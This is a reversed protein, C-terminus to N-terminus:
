KEEVIVRQENTTALNGQEKAMARLEQITDMVDQQQHVFANGIKATWTLNEAMMALVNPYYCLSLISVDWDKSHLADDLQEGTLYPNKAIWREAEAVEFPYSAAILVQSLLSDPYLAIPALIQALEENSFKSNKEYNSSTEARVAIPLVFLAILISAIIMKTIERNM